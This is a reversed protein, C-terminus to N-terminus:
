ADPRYRKGELMKSRFKGYQRISAPDRHRGCFCDKMRGEALALYELRRWWGLSKVPDTPNVGRSMIENFERFSRILDAVANEMEEALM